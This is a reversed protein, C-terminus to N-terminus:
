MSGPAGHPTRVHLRAPYAVVNQGDLLEVAQDFRLHQDLVPPEIGRGNM